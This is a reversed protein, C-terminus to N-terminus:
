ANEVLGDLNPITAKVFSPEELSSNLEKVSSTDKFLKRPDVAEGLRLSATM